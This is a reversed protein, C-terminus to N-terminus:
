YGSSICGLNSLWKDAESPKSFRLLVLHSFEPLSLFQPYTRKRKWYTQFLWNILSEKSWLKFHIWFPEYNTGWLLEKSRWRTYIRTMLRRLVLFFPYDLWIITDARSWVIDRVVGYNGALVWAPSSTANEVKVRFEDPSSDVWGPKWYLADLEIFPVYLIQALKEALTSKGCGTAGVVVIRKHPASFLPLGDTGTNTATSSNPLFRNTM